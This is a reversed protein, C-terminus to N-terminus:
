VDRDFPVAIALADKVRMGIRRPSVRVLKDSHHKTITDHSLGTLREIEPMSAVRMLELASLQPEQDDSM